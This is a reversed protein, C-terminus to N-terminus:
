FVLHSNLTTHKTSFDWIWCNELLFSPYSITAKSENYVLLNPLLELHTMALIIDTIWLRLMERPVALLHIVWSLTPEPLPKTGDLALDNDSGINVFIEVLM